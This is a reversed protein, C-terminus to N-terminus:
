VRQHSLVQNAFQVDNNFDIKQPISETKTDQVEPFDDKSTDINIQNRM